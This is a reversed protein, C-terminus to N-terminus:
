KHPNYPPKPPTGKKPPKLPPMSSSTPQYGQLMQWNKNVCLKHEVSGKVLWGGIFGLILVGFLIVEYPIYIYM